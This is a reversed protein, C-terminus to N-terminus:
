DRTGTLSLQDELPTLAVAQGRGFSALVAFGSGDLPVGADLRLVFRNLQPLLARVEGTAVLGRLVHTLAPLLARGRIEWMGGVFQGLWAGGAASAEAELAEEAARVSALDKQEAVLQKAFFMRGLSNIKTASSHRKMVQRRGQRGRIM